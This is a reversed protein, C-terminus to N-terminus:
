QLRMAPFPKFWNRCWDQDVIRDNNGRLPRIKHSQGVNRANRVFDLRQALPRLAEIM